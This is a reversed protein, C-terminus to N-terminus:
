FRIPLESQQVHTGPENAKLYNKISAVADESANPAIRVEKMAERPFSMEIYPVIIGYQSRYRIVNKKEEPLKEDNHPVYYIGRVEEESSFCEHKFRFKYKGLGYEIARKLNGAKPDQSAAIKKLIHVDLLSM